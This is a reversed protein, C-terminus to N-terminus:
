ITKNMNEVKTQLAKIEFELNQLVKDTQTKYAKKDQESQAKIEEIVVWFEQKIREILEPQKDHLEAKLHEIEWTKKDSKIGSFYNTFKFTAWLGITYLIFFIAMWLIVRSQPTAIFFLNIEDTYSLIPFNLVLFLLFVIVPLFFLVTSLNKM